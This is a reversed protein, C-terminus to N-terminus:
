PINWSGDPIYPFQESASTGTMDVSGRAGDSGFVSELAAEYSRFDEGYDLGKAKQFRWKVGLTLIDEDILATDTDATFSSKGTTDSAQVWNKSIYEFYVTNGAPPNPYFLIDNGRIRFANVVGVQAGLALRRQWELANLPGIVRWHQTRNNMSEDVLRFFDPAVTSLATQLAAAVTTFSAEVTLAQWDFRRILDKGDQNALNMLQLVQTDTSTAVTSPSTLNMGIAANQIVTLLSM